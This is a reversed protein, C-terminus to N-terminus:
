PQKRRDTDRRKGVLGVLRALHWMSVAFGLIAGMIVLWPSTGWRSDLWAGLGAPLVMELGITTVQSALAMATVM